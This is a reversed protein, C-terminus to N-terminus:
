RGTNMWAINWGVVSASISSTTTMPSALSLLADTVIPYGSEGVGRYYTTDACLWGYCVGGGARLMPISGHFEQYRNNATHFM